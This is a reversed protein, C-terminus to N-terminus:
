LSGTMQKDSVTSVIFVKDGLLLESKCLSAAVIACVGGDNLFFIWDYGSM